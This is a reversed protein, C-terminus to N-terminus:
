WEPAPSDHDCAVAIMMAKDDDSRSIVRESRLFAHLERSLGASMGVADSDDLPQVIGSFFPEHPSM